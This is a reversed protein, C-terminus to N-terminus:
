INSVDSLPIVIFIDKMAYEAHRRKRERQRFEDFEIYKKCKSHCYLERKECNRCPAEM